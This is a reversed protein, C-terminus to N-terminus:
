LRMNHLLPGKVVQDYSPPPTECARRVQGLDRPLLPPNSPLGGVVSDYTPPPQQIGNVTNGDATRGHQFSTIVHHNRMREDRARQDSVLAEVSPANPVIYSNPVVLTSSRDFQAPSHEVSSDNSEVISTANQERQKRVDVRDKVFQSINYYLSKDVLGRDIDASYLYQARLTTRLVIYQYRQYKFDRESIKREIAKVLNLESNAHKRFERNNKVYIERSLFLTRFLFIIPNALCDAAFYSYM